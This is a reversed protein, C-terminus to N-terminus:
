NLFRLHKDDITDAILASCCTDCKILKLLRHVIFGAIYSVVQSSFETTDEVLISIEEDFMAQEYLSIIEDEDNSEDLKSPEISLNINKVASSCTLISVEELSTCNGQDLDRLESKVLLKKYIAKFSDSQQTLTASVM